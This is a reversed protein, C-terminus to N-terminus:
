SHRVTHAGSEGAAWAERDLRGARWAAVPRGGGLQRGRASRGHRRSREKTVDAYIVYAVAGYVTVFLLIGFATAM